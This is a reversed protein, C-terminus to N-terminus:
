EWGDRGMRHNRGSEQGGSGQAEEESGGLGRGWWCQGGRDERVCAAQRFISMSGVVSDRATKAPKGESCVSQCIYLLPTAYNGNITRTPRLYQFISTKARRLPNKRATTNHVDPTTNHTKALPPNKPKIIFDLFTTLVHTKAWIVFM